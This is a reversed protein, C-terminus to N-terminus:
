LLMPCSVWMDSVGRTVKCFVSMVSRVRSTTQPSPAPAVVSCVAVNTRTWGVASYQAGAQHRLTWVWRILGTILYAKCVTVLHRCGEGASLRETRVPMWGASSQRSPSVSDKVYRPTSGPCRSWEAGAQERLPFAGFRLDLCVNTGAACCNM